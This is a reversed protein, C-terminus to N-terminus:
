NSIYTSSPMWTWTLILEIIIVFYVFSKWPLIFRAYSKTTKTISNNFDWSSQIKGKVNQKGDKWKLLLSEFM